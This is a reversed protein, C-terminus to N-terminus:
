LRNTLPWIELTVLSAWIFIFNFKEPRYLPKEQQCYM